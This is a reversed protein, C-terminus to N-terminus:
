SAFIAIIHSRSLPVLICPSNIVFHCFVVMEVPVSLLSGGGKKAGPVASIPYTPKFFERCPIKPLKTHDYSEDLIYGFDMKGWHEKSVCGFHVHLLLRWATYLLTNM